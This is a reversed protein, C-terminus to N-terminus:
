VRRIEAVDILFVTAGGHRVYPVQEAARSLLDAPVEVDRPSCERDLVQLVADEATADEVGILLTANEAHLFGGFSPIETLRHGEDRLVEVVHEADLNHLVALILRAM